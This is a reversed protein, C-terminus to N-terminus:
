GRGRGAFVIVGAVRVLRRAVVVVICVVTRARRCLGGSLLPGSGTCCVQGAESRGVRELGPTRMANEGARDRPSAHAHYKGRSQGAPAPKRHPVLDSQALRKRGVPGGQGRDVLLVRLVLQVLRRGLLPFARLLPRPDVNRVPTRMTNEGARDRESTRISNQRIRNLRRVRSPGKKGGSWSLCVPIPIRVGVACPADPVVVGGRQAPLLNSQQDPRM